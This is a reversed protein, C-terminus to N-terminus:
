LNPALDASITSKSANYGDQDFVVTYRGYGSSAGRRTLKMEWRTQWNSSRLRSTHFFEPKDITIDLKNRRNAYKGHEANYRAQATELQSLYSFAESAKTKEVTSMFRPVAFTALVGLIVVVITLEVLSFGSRPNTQLNTKM